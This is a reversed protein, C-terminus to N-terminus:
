QGSGVARAAGSLTFAYWALVGAAFLIVGVGTCAVGWRRKSEPTTALKWIVAGSWAGNAFHFVAAWVGLLGLLAMAGNAGAFGAATSAFAAGHPEFVGRGWRHLTGAHVLLFVLVVLATVRQLFFRVKGGRNCKRVDYKLGEKWLLFLGSLAQYILPLFIAASVLTRAGAIASEMSDINRQYAAPWIGTVCIALHVALFLGAAAGCIAHTRRPWLLKQCACAPEAPQQVDLHHTCGHTAPIM